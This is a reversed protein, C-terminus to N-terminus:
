AALAISKQMCSAEEETKSALCTCLNNTSTKDWIIFEQKKKANKHIEVEELNIFASFFSSPWYRAMNVERETVLVRIHSCVVFNTGTVSDARFGYVTRLGGKERIKMRDIFARISDSSVPRWCWVRSKM